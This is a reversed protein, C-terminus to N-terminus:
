VRSIIASRASKRRSKKDGYDPLYEEPLEDPHEMYYGYLMEILQQAGGKRRKRLGTMTYMTLCGAPALGHMAEEREPSM